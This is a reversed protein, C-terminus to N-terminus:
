EWQTPQRYRVRERSSRQNSMPAPGRLDACWEWCSLGLLRGGFRDEDRHGSHRWVPVEMEMRHLNYYLQVSRCVWDSVIGM